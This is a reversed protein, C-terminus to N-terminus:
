DKVTNIEESERELGIKKERCCKLSFRQCSTIVNGVVDTPRELPFLLMKKCLLVTKVSLLIFCLEEIDSLVWDM